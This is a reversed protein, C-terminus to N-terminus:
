CSTLWKATEEIKNIRKENQECKEKSTKEGFPTYGWRANVPFYKVADFHDNFAEKCAMYFKGNLIQLLSDFDM